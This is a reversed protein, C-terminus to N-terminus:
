IKFFLKKYFEFGGFHTLKYLKELNLCMKLQNEKKKKLKKILNLCRFFTLCSLNKSLELNEILFKKVSNLCFFLFLFHFNLQQVFVFKRNVDVTTNRFQRHFLTNNDFIAAFFNSQLREFINKMSKGGLNFIWKQM